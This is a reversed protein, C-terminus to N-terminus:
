SYSILGVKGLYWALDQVEKRDDHFYYCNMSM